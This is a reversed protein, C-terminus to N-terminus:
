RKEELLVSLARAIQAQQYRLKDSDRGVFGKETLRALQAALIPVAVDRPVHLRALPTFAVWDSGVRRMEWRLKERREKLDIQEDSISVRSNIQIHAWGREGKIEVKQVRLQEFVVVPVSPRLLDDRRLVSGSVSTLESVAEEVEDRTPKSRVTVVLISPPVEFPDSEPQARAPADPAAFETEAKAKGETTQRPDGRREEIVPVTIIQVQKDAAPQGGAVLVDPRRVLYRYFRGAGRRRWYPSDYYNTRLGSRVSSYFTHQEPDVVIGVHGPWVILDGPQPVNVRVFDGIGSYLDFSNAYAYSFGAFGYIQHVLHSCDSKRRIRQEYEWVAQVIAQGDEPNLMRMAAASQLEAAAGQAGRVSQATAPVAAALWIATVLLAFGSARERHPVLNTKPKRM